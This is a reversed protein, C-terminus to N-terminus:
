GDVSSLLDALDDMSRQMSKLYDSADPQRALPPFIIDSLGMESVAARAQAPPAAEWLLAIADTEAVLDQLAKLQEQTPAAGADWELSRIDVGYARAFYQYRPHTAILVKGQALARLQSAATDLQALDQALAEFSMEVVDPEVLARRSLADAIARAQLVALEQDLWIYTAIGEHSHEGDDGHNHTVTETKIFRDEIGRSTDLIRSRPLSAKTTWNAFGAGNLVILDANQISGIDAIGPRWFSPDVGAPVPYVVDIEEGGLRAAFYSLAYNVAVVTPRDNDQALASSGLATVAL